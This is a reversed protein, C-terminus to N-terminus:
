EAADAFDNFDIGTDADDDGEMVDLLSKQEPEQGNLLVALRRRIFPNESKSVLTRTNFAAYPKANNYSKWVEAPDMCYVNATGMKLVIISDMKMLTQIHRSVTREGIDLAEALTRRSAALTGDPGMHEALFAYVRAANADEKMLKQLVAWGKPNVQTFNKNERRAKQKKAEAAKAQDDRIAAKAAEDGGEARIRAMEENTIM